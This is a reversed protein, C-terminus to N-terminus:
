CFLEFFTENSLCHEQAVNSCVAVFPAHSVSRDVYIDYLYGATFALSGEEPGNNMTFDKKCELTKTIKM